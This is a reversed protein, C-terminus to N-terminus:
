NAEATIARISAVISDRLESRKEQMLKSAAEYRELLDANKVARADHALKRFELRVEEVADRQESFADYPKRVAPFYVDILFEMHAVDHVTITDQAEQQQAQDYSINGLMASYFRLFRVDLRKTWASIATHLEEGRTRLLGQERQEKEAQLQAAYRKAAARNNFYSGLIALGGGVVAGSITTLFTLLQTDVGTGVQPGYGVFDYYILNM